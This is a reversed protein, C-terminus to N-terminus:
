KKSEEKKNVSNKHIEFNYNKEKTIYSSNKQSIEIQGVPSCTLRNKNKILRDIKSSKEKIIQTKSSPLSVDNNKSLNQWFAMRSDFERDIKTLKKNSKFFPFFSYLCLFLQL